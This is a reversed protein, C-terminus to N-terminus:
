KLNSIITDCSSASRDILSSRVAAARDQDNDYDRNLLNPFFFLKFVFFLIFVKVIILAWLKRGITMSRFGDRYFRYIRVPLPSKDRNDPQEDNKM